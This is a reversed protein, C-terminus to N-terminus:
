RRKLKRRAMEADMAATAEGYPGVSRVLLRRSDPHRAWEAVAVEESWYTGLITGAYEVAWERAVAPAPYGHDTLWQVLVKAIADEEASV